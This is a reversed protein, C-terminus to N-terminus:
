PIVKLGNFEIILRTHIKRVQGSGPININRTQNEFHNAPKSPNVPTAYIVKEGKKGVCKEAKEITIIEGGIRRTRDATIFKISFPIPKGDGNLKDMEEIVQKYSITNNM